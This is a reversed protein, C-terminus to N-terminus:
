GSLINRLINIAFFMFSLLGVSAVTLTLIRSYDVLQAYLDRKSRSIKELKPDKKFKALEIDKSAETLNGFLYSNVFELIIALTLAIVAMYISLALANPYKLLNEKDNTVLFAIVAVIVSVSTVAYRSLRALDERTYENHKEELFYIRKAAGEEISM